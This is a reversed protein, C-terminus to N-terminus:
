KAVRYGAVAGAYFERKKTRRKVGATVGKYPGVQGAYVHGHSRIRVHAVQKVKVVKATGTSAFRGRSDRKYKRKKRAM